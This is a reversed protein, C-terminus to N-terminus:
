FRVIDPPQEQDIERPKTNRTVRASEFTESVSFMQLVLDSEALKQNDTLTGLHKLREAAL